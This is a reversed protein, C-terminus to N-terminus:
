SASGAAAPAPERRLWPLALLRLLYRANLVEAPPVFDGCVGVLLDTLERSRALAASAHNILLPHAIFTAIAREVLRKPRMEAARQTHYARLAEDAGHDSPADLADIVWPALLEGARLASYIGEGTFPDFYDAADGALAAGPAWSRRSRVAFPGTALVKGVRHARALRPGFHPRARLWREYFGTADGAFRRAEESPVVLSINTIGGGTPALGFFGDEEVHMEGYSTLGDVGEWHGVLGLRRPRGESRRLGLRRAIVSRLGDAGIVIRARIDRAAGDGDTVRVGIVRGDDRLVDVAKMRELVRAGRVIARELLLTDLVDRRISFARDRFPAHGSVSGYAGSIVTGNPARVRMGDLEAHVSQECARLAGMDRLIRACEPSLLEACPKTRPFTARDLVIVRVGRDALAHSVCAGAPGGGVVVM